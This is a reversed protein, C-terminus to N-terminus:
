APNLRAPLTILNERERKQRKIEGTKKKKKRKKKRTTIDLHTSDFEHM